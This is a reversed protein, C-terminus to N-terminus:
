PPTRSAPPQVDQYAVSMRPILVAGIGLGRLFLATGLWWLNTAPGALAFPATAIAALLPGAITVARAGFRDVVAGIMFRAALAGVGQPTLLLGARFVIEDRLQQYYLPLLFVGAYM